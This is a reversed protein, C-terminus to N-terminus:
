GSLDEPWREHEWNPVVVPVQGPLLTKDGDKFTRSDEKDYETPPLASLGSGSAYEASLDIETNGDHPGWPYIQLKREYAARINLKLKDDTAAAIERAWEIVEHGNMTHLVGTSQHLLRSAPLFRELNRTNGSILQSVAMLTLALERPSEKYEDVVQQAYAEVEEVPTVGVSTGM